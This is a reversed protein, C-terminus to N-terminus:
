DEYLVARLFPVTASEKRGIGYGQRVPVTGEPKTFNEAFHKVIAAGTPTCFEEEEDGPHNPIGMLISATAPAPVPLIGHACCIQGFGTRIPSATIRNPSLKDVAMCAAIVYAVAFLSGVEHFHVNDVSEGHVGAEAEAIIRYIAAADEKVRDSIKLGSIVDIVDSLKRHVHEHSQGEEKGGILIRIRTGSTGNRKEESVIAEIGPIGSSDLMRGIEAPDDLLDALSGAINDKSAGASCDIFLRM